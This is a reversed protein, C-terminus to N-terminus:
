TPWGGAGVGDAFLLVEDLLAELRALLTPLDALQERAIDTDQLELYDKGCIVTAQYLALARERPTLVIPM